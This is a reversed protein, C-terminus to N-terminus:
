KAQSQKVGWGHQRCRSMIMMMMTCAEGSNIPLRRPSSSSGTVFAEKNAHENDENHERGTRGEREEEDDDAAASADYAACVDDDNMMMMMMMMMMMIM